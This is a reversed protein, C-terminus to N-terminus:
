LNPNDQRVKEKEREEKYKKEDENLKKALDNMDGCDYDLRMTRPSYDSTYYVVRVSNNNADTYSYDEWLTSTEHGTQKYLKDMKRVIEKYSDRTVDEFTLSASYLYNSRGSDDSLFFLDIDSLTNGAFDWNLRALYDDAKKAGTGYYVYNTRIIGSPHPYETVSPYYSAEVRVGGVVVRKESIYTSEGYERNFKEDIVRKETLWDLGYFRIEDNKSDVTRKIEIKEKDSDKSDSSNSCGTLVLALIVFCLVLAVKRM